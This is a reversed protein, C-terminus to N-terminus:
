YNKKLEGVLSFVNRYFGVRIDIYGNPFHHVEPLRLVKNELTGLIARRSEAGLDFAEIADKGVALADHKSWLIVDRTKLGELTNNALANSGPLEYPVIFIGKPVFVRIKPLMSWPVKNLLTKETDLLTHHRIVILELPHGHLACRKSNGSKANAIHIGPHSDFESTPRLRPNNGGVWVIYHGSTKSDIYIIGSVEAPRSVHERLLEVTVLIYIIMGSAEGPLNTKIYKEPLLDNEEIEALGTLNASINMSNRECWGYQWLYEAVESVKIIEDQLNKNLRM